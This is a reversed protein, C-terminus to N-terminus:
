IGKCPKKLNKLNELIWKGKSEMFITGQRWPVM